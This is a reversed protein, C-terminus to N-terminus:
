MKCFLQIPSSDVVVFFPVSMFVTEPDTEMTVQMDLMEDEVRQEYNREMFISEDPWDDKDTGLVEGIHNSTDMM